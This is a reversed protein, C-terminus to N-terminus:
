WCSSAAVVSRVLDWQPNGSGAVTHLRPFLRLLTSAFTHVGKEGSPILCPGFTVIRLPCEVLDHNRLTPGEVDPPGAVPPGTISAGVNVHISLQRLHKCHEAIAVLSKISNDAPISCPTEGLTLDELEPMAKVLLELDEDSLKHGCQNLGCTFSIALSTLQTLPLLHEVTARNVELGSFNDKCDIALMTLTRHLGRPQLDKLARLHLATRAAGVNKLKLVLGVLNKSDIRKLSPLWISNACLEGVCLYRLSPFMTTPLQAEDHESGDAQIAKVELYRLNPLQSAHLFAARSVPADIAFNCLRHPTCKFLLTSFEQALEPDSLAIYISRLSSHAPALASLVTPVYSADHLSLKFDTLSQSVALQFIHLLHRERYKNCWELELLNPFMCRGSFRANLLRFASESPLAACGPAIYLKRM